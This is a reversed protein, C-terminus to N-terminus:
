YESALMITLVRRTALPDSADDSHREFTPDYYDIKWLIRTGYHEFIACDREHFPDNDPTFQDFTEVRERIRSQVELPLACIGPTQVVRSAIGM